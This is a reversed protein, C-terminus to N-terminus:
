GEQNVLSWVSVHPDESGLSGRCKAASSPLRSATMGPWDDKCSPRLLQLSQLNAASKQAFTSYKPDGQWCCPLPLCTVPGLTPLWQPEQSVPHLVETWQMTLHGLAPSDRIGVGRGLLLGPIGPQATCYIQSPSVVSVGPVSSCVPDPTQPPPFVALLLVKEAWCSSFGKRQDSSHLLLFPTSFFM